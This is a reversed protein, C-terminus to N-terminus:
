PYTQVDPEKEKGKSLTVQMYKCVQYSDLDDQM